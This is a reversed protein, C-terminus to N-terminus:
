WCPASRTWAGGHTAHLLQHCVCHCIAAVLSPVLSAPLTPFLPLLATQQGSHCGAYPYVILYNIKLSFYFSASSVAATRRNWVMCMGCPDRQMRLLLLHNQTFAQNGQTNHVATLGKIQQHVGNNSAPTLSEHLHAIELFFIYIFLIFLSVTHSTSASNVPPLWSSATASSLHVTAFLAGWIQAPMNFLGALLCYVSSVM